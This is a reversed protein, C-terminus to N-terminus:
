PSPKLTGGLVGALLPGLILLALLCPPQAAASVVPPTTPVPSERTLSGRNCLDGSCCSGQLDISSWPSTTGKITCSPRHCTRIFVPVSFNGVTMQGHGQFCVSQDQHCQVRRAKEPTCDEQHIGVCSYCETGSLTQPSPAPSLNPVSDHSMLNANCLHTNCGRVSSYDPPLAHESTLTEGTLPGTWCGKQVVTVGSRYGTNLSLVAESCGHSCSVSHFKSVSLDFPGSYVHRFSYCQLPGHILVQTQIGVGYPLLM